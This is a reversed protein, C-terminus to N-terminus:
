SADRLDIINYKRLLRRIYDPEVGCHQAHEMEGSLYRRCVSREIESTERTLGQVAEAVVYYMLLRHGRLDDSVALRFDRQLKTLFAEEKKELGRQYRIRPKATKKEHIHTKM